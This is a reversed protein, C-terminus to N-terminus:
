NTEEVTPPKMTRAKAPNTESAPTAPPAPAPKWAHLLAVCVALCGLGPVSAELGFLGGTVWTPAQHFVPQLLGQQSTGSVGLGLLGGQAFDAMLHLGLPMALSRTRLFALGFLISALFINVSAVAKTGGHMGPNNSHILLFYAAVLLQAPLSGLGALLRQFLVGRFMLEETLAVGAFLVFSPAVTSLGSPNWRWTVWDGAWLLVAPLVMLATGLLGGLGFERLWRGNLMGVLESLPQHRLRQCLWSALLVLGGQYLPSLAVGSHRSFLLAPLLLAALVLFFIAIWWGNRLKRQSDFFIYAGSSLLRAM